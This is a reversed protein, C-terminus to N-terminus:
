LCAGTSRHWAGPKPHLTYPTPHLIYPKPHLTYPKPDLKPNLSCLHEAVVCKHAQTRETKLSLVCEMHEIIVSCM